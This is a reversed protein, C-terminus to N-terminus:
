ENGTSDGIKDFAVTSSQGVKTEFHIRKGEKWMDTRLAQGPLVPSSFRAQLLIWDVM